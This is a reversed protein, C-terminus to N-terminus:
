DVIFIRNNNAGSLTIKGAGDLTATRTVLLFPATIPITAPSGNNKCNFTIAGGAALLTRLQSDNTCDTVVGAAQAPQAWALLLWLLVIPALALVMSRLLPNAVFTRM